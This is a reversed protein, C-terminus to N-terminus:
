LLGEIGEMLEELCLTAAVIPSVGADGGIKNRSILTVM